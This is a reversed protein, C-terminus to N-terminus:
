ERVVGQDFGTISVCVPAVESRARAGLMPRVARAWARSLDQEEIVDFTTMRHRWTDISRWGPSTPVCAAFRWRGVELEYNVRARRGRACYDGMWVSSRTAKPSRASRPLCFM